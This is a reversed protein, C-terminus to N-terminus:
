GRAFLLSSSFRFTPDHELLWLIGHLMTETKWHRIPYSFLVRVPTESEGMLLARAENFAEILDGLHTPPDCGPSVHDIYQLLPRPTM